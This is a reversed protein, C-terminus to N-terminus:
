EMSSRACEILVFLGIHPIWVLESAASPTIKGGSGLGCVLWRMVSDDVVVHFSLLSNSFYHLEHYASSDFYQM